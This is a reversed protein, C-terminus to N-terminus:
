VKAGIIDVKIPKADKEAPYFLLTPFEQVEFERHDNESGDMKAVVVSEVGAMAAALKAYEPAFSRCAGCWPAYIELLVDKTPDKVVENMTTGVVVTFNGQKPNEPAPQSSYIRTGKGALVEEGCKVLMAADLNEVGPPVGCTFRSGHTAMIVGVFFETSTHSIGFTSAIPYTTPTTGAEAAAPDATIITMQGRLSSSIERLTAITSETELKKPPAVIYM